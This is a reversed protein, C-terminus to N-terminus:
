NQSPREVHDIVVMQEPGTAPQLKLGLDQIATFISPADEPPTADAAVAGPLVSKM